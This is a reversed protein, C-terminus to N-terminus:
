PGAQTCVAVSTSIRATGSGMGSASTSARPCYTTRGEVIPKSCDCATGVNVRGDSKTGRVGKEVPYTPRDPYSSNKAVVYRVTPPPAPQPTPDPAPCKETPPIPMGDQIPVWCAAAWWSPATPPVPGPYPAPPPEITPPVSPPVLQAHAMACCAALLLAAIYKM